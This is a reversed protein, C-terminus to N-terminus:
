LDIPPFVGSDKDYFITFEGHRYLALRQGLFDFSVKYVDRNSLWSIVDQVDNTEHEEVAGSEMRIQIKMALEKENLSSLM